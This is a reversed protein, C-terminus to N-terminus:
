PRGDVKGTNWSRKLRRRMECMNNEAELRVDFTKAFLFANFVQKWKEQKLINLYGQPTEHYKAKSEGMIELLEHMFPYKQKSNSFGGSGLVFILLIVMILSTAQKIIKTKLM